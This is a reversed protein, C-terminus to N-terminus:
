AGIPPQLFPAPTLAILTPQACPDTSPGAPRAIHLSGPLVSACDVSCNGVKAKMAKSDTQGCCTMHHPQSLKLTEAMGTDAAFSREIPVPQKPVRTLANASHVGAFLFILLTVLITRM